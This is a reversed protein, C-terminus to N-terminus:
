NGAIAYIQQRRLDFITEPVNDIILIIREAM